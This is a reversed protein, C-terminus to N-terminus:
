ALGFGADELHEICFLIRDTVQVSDTRAHMAAARALQQDNYDPLDLRNFCTHAVPLSDTAGGM